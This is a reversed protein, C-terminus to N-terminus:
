GKMFACCGLESMECFGLSKYFAITKPTNDTALQIQRVGSFENLVKKILMTGIGQRQYEPYVLLDQILVVTEGDGVTRILGVLKGNDYAGLVLLSKEFGKKLKEPVDTYATWGVSSYLDLIEKEIYTTYTRIEIM